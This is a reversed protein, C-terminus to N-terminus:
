GFKEKHGAPKGEISVEAIAARRQILVTHMGRKYELQERFNERRLGAFREANMGCLFPAGGAKGIVACYLHGIEAGAIRSRSFNGVDGRAGGFRRRFSLQQVADHTM